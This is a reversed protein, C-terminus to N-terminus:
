SPSAVACLIVTVRPVMQRSNLMSYAKTSEPFSLAVHIQGWRSTAMIGPRLDGMFGYHHWCRRAKGTTSIDVEAPKLADDKRSRTNGPEIGEVKRSVAQTSASRRMSIVM